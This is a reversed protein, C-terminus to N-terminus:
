SFNITCVQFTIKVFFESAVYLYYIQKRANELQIFCEQVPDLEPRTESIADIQDVVQFHLKPNKDYLM